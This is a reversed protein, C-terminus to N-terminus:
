HLFLNFTNDRFEIGLYTVCVCGGGGDGQYGFLYASFAIICRTSNVCTPKSFGLAQWFLSASKLPLSWFVSMIFEFLM